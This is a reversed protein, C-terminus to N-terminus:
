PPAPSPRMSARSPELLAGPCFAIVLAQIRPDGSLRGFSRRLILIDFHRTRVTMRYVWLANVVIWMIPFLGFLVGQAGAALDQGLPMGYAFSGVAVAVALGVLGARHARM